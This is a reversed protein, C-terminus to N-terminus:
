SVLPVIGVTLKESTVESLTLVDSHLLFTDTLLNTTYLIGEEVYLVKEGHSM